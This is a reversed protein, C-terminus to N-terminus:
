SSCCFKHFNLMGSTKKFFQEFGENKMNKHEQTKICIECVIQKCDWCYIDSVCQHSRCKPANQLQSLSQNLKSLLNSYGRNKIFEGLKVDVRCQPCKADTSLFDTLCKKCYTEGCKICMLNDESPVKETCISCEIQASEIQDILNHVSGQSHKLQCGIKEVPKDTAPPKAVTNAPKPKPPAKKEEEIEKPKSKTEEKKSDAKPAAKKPAEKKEEPKPPEVKKPESKSAEKKQDSKPVEKKPDPKPAEKKNEEVKPKANKNEEKSAQPKPAEAKVEKKEEIKVPKEAPPPNQVKKPPDQVAQNNPAPDNQGKKPDIGIYDIYDLDSVVSSDWSEGDKLADLVDVKSM